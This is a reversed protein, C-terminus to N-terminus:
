LQKRCMVPSNGDLRCGMAWLRELTGKGAKSGVGSRHVGVGSGRAISNFQCRKCKTSQDKGTLLHFEADSQGNCLQLLSSQRLQHDM